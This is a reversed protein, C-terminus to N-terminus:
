IKINKINGYIYGIAAGGIIAPIIWGLGKSYLPLFNLITINLGSQGVADLISIISTLIM